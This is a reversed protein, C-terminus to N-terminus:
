RSIGLEKRMKLLKFAAFRARRAPLAVWICAASHAWLVCLTFAASVVRHWCTRYLAIISMGERFYSDPLETSICAQFM